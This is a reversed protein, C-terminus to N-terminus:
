KKPNCTKRWVDDQKMEKVIEVMMIGCGNQYAIYKLM